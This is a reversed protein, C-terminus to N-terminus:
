QRDIVIVKHTRVLRKTQQDYFVLLYTGKALGNVNITAEGKVEYQEVLQGMSNVIQMFVETQEGRIRVQFQGKNPNPWVDVRLFPPVAKIDSYSIRDNKSVARIRYYTWGDYRNPDAYRYDTRINTNGNPAISRVEGAKTFDTDKDYRREIEFHDNNLERSVSWELQAFNENLRWANFYIFVAPAYPGYLVSAKTFYENNTLGDKLVRLHMTANKLTHTTTINGAVPLSGPNEVYDWANNVFRTVYSASRFAAYDRGEDADMHQLTLKAEAADTRTKAINWTKNTFDLKNAIGSIAYQYVSDFVRARFDDATGDYEIVAPAYTSLSTGIPFVIKGASGDVRERYLFGGAISTGTVVFSQESYGTITGPKGEGVVLNWGNLFLHGTSFNLNNRVKLDSLDSLLIGLRNDVEFNPFTAGLRSVISYGGYVQQAGLNGYLPNNGSFRFLGGSGSFGNQSNDPLSAGNGNNWAKGFFNVVANDSTGFAGENVVNGYISMVEGTGVQIRTGPAIYLDQQQAALPLVALLFLITILVRM